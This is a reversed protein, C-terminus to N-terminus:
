LLREGCESCKPNPADPGHQVTAGPNHTDCNACRLCNEHQIPLNCDLVVGSVVFHKVLAEMLQAEYEALARECEFEMAETKNEV